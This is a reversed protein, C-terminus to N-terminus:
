ETILGKSLRFQYNTEIEFDIFDDVDKINVFDTPKGKVMDPLNKFIKNKNYELILDDQLCLSSKSLKLIYNEVKEKYSPEVSNIYSIYGLVVNNISYDGTAIEYHIMARVLHKMDKSAKLVNDNVTIGLISKRTKQTMLITKKNNPLFGEENLIKKVLSYLKKLENKDDSSFILDDAYRTYILDHKNCYGAIRSDLKRCILNALHASTVAGQPLQDKYVCIETLLNSIETNYGMSEFLYYVQKRHISPYFNKIDMKFLYLNNKHQEACLAIPSGDSKKDFGYSYRSADFKYLINILIWRQVVKLSKCPANIERLHGDRKKISFTNYREDSDRTLWYILNGTLGINSVLDDFNEMMPLDLSDIIIKNTYKKM